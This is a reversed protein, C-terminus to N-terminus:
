LDSVPFLISRQIQHEADINLPANRKLEMGFGHDRPVCVVMEGIGLNTNKVLQLTYQM